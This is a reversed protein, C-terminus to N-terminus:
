YTCALGGADGMGCSVLLQNGDVAVAPRPSALVGQLALVIIAYRMADGGLMADCDWSDSTLMIHFRIPVM